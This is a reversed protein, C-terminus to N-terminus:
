PMPGTATLKWTTNSYASNNFSLWPLYNGSARTSDTLISTGNKFSLKYTLQKKGCNPIALCTPMYFDRSTDDYYAAIPNKLTGCQIYQNGACLLQVDFPKSPVTWGTFFDTINLTCSYIGEKSSDTTYIMLRPDPSVSQSSNTTYYDWPHYPQLVYTVSLFSACNYSVGTASIYTAQV